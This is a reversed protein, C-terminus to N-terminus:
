YKCNISHRLTASSPWNQTQTCCPQNLGGHYGEDCNGAAVPFVSTMRHTSDRIIGVRQQQADWCGCRQRSGTIGHLRLRKRRLCSATPSWRIAKETPASEVAPAVREAPRLILQTRWPAVRGLLVDIASGFGAVSWLVRSMVFLGAFQVFAARFAEAASRKWVMRSTASRRLTAVRVTRRQIAEPTSPTWRIPRVTRMESASRAAKRAVCRAM